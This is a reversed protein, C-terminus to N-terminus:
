IKRHAESLDKPILIYLHALSDIRLAKLIDEAGSASSERM